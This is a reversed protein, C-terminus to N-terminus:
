GIINGIFDGSPPAFHRILYAFPIGAGLTTSLEDNGLSAFAGNGAAALGHLLHFLVFRKAPPLLTAFWNPLLYRQWFHPVSASHVLAPSPLTV